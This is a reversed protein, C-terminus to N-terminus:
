QFRFLKNWKLWFIQIILSTSSNSCIRYVSLTNNYSISLEPLEYNESMHNIHIKHKEFYVSKNKM